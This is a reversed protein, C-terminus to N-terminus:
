NWVPQVPRLQYEWGPQWSWPAPIVKDMPIGKIWHELGYQTARHGIILVSIDRGHYKQGLDDLFSKMRKSCGQYSEGNPFPEIIHNVKQPDVEASPHQTLDGYNCERLRKDKVIPFKKGFAIEATQYSRQLDSCFIAEFQENKRRKGLDEAQKIGLSSLKVDNWGSALHKENDLSTSHTEFFIKVM